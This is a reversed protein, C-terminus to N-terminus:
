DVPPSVVIVFVGGVHFNEREGDNTSFRIDDEM